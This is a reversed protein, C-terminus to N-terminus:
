EEEDPLKAEIADLRAMIKGLTSTIESNKEREVEAKLETRFVEVRELLSDAKDDIHREFAAWDIM